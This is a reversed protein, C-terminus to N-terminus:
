LTLVERATKLKEFIKNIYSDAFKEFTDATHMGEASRKYRDYEKRLWTFDSEKLKIINNQSNFKSEFLNALFYTIFNSFHRAHYREEYEPKLLGYSQKLWEKVDERITLTYYRGSEDIRMDSSEVSYYGLKVENMLIILTSPLFMGPYFVDTLSQLRACISPKLGITAYGKGPM